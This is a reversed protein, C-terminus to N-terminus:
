PVFAQIDLKVYREFLGMGSSLVFCVILCFFNHVMQYLLLNCPDIAKPICINICSRFENGSYDFVFCFIIYMFTVSSRKKIFFIINCDRLTCFIDVMNCPFVYMLYM